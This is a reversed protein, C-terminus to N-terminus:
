MNGVFADIVTSAKFYGDSENIPSHKVSPLLTGIYRTTKDFMYRRDHVFRLRAEIKDTNYKGCLFGIEFLVADMFAGTMFFAVILQPDYEKIIIEFKKDLRKVNKLNKLQEMIIINEPKYHFKEILEKKVKKRYTLHQKGPALLM